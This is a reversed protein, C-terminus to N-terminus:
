SRRARQEGAIQVREGCHPADELMARAAGADERECPGAGLSSIGSGARGRIGASM